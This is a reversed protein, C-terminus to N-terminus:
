AEAPASTGIVLDEAIWTSVDFPPLIVSNFPTGETKCHLIGRATGITQSLLYDLLSKPIVIRGERVFGQWDEPHIGFGCFVSLLMFPSEKEGFRFTMVIGLNRDEVAYKVEMQTHIRFDESPKKESLIAFQETRIASMRFRTM